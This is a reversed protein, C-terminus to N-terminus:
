WYVTSLHRSYGSKDEELVCFAIKVSDRVVQSEDTTFGELFKECNTDIDILIQVAEHRICPIINKNSIIKRLEKSAIPTKFRKLSYMIQMQIPITMYEENKAVASGLIAAALETGNQRLYLITKRREIVSIEPNSLLKRLIEVNRLSSLNLRIFPASTALFKKASEIAIVKISAKNLIAIICADRVHLNENKSNIVLANMVNKKINLAEILIDCARSNEINHILFYLEDLIIPSNQYEMSKEYIDLTNEPSLPRKLEMLTALRKHYWISKGDYLETSYLNNHM